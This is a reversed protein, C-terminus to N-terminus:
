QPARQAAVADSFQAMDLVWMDGDRTMEANTTGIPFHAKLHRPITVRKSKAGKPTHFVSFEGNETPKFALRTGSEFIDVKQTTIANQPIVLLVPGSKINCVAFSKRADRGRINIVKTWM